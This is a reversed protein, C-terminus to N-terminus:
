GLKKTNKLSTYPWRQKRRNACRVGLPCMITKYIKLYNQDDDDDDKGEEKDDRQFGM